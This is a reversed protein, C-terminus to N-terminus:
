RTITFAAHYTIPLPARPADDDSWTDSAVITVREPSYWDSGDWWYPADKRCVPQWTVTRGQDVSQPMLYATPEDCSDYCCRAMRAYARSRLASACWRAYKAPPDDRMPGAITDVTVFSHGYRYGIGHRLEDPWAHVGASAYTAGPHGMFTNRDYGYQSPHASAEQISRRFAALTATDPYRAGMSASRADVPDASSPHHSMM